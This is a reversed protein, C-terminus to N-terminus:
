GCGLPTCSAICDPAIRISTSVSEMMWTVYEGVAAIGLCVSNTTALVKHGVGRHLSSSVEASMTNAVELNFTATARLSPTMAYVSRDPLLSTASPGLLM